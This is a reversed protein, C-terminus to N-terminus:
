AGSRSRHRLLRASKEEAQQLMEPTDVDQWWGDGIDVARAKGEAALLRMGDSLSCDGGREAAAARLAEFILGSCLFVGTDIADYHELQKGIDIIREGKTVVKTADDLDFISGIKRDVALNVLEREAGAVLRELVEFEFLHDGMTLFFPVQVHDAACLVSIGNQKQWEPNSIPNFRMSSPVLPAVLGALQANHGGTVAHLTRVGARELTELTYCLLPRGGIEVLPKAIAGGPTGLRSGIGAMLIVADTVAPSEM